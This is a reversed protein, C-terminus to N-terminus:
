SRTEFQAIGHTDLTLAIRYLIESVGEECSTENGVTCHNSASIDSHGEVIVCIDGSGRGKPSVVDCIYEM